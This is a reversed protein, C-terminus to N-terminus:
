AQLQCQCSVIATDSVDRNLRAKPFLLVSFSKAQQHCLSSFVLLLTASAINVLVCSAPHQFAPPNGGDIETYRLLVIYRTPVDRMSATCLFGSCRLSTSSTLLAITCITAFIVGMNPEGAGSDVAADECEPGVAQEVIRSNSYLTNRVMRVLEHRSEGTSLVKSDQVRSSTPRWKGCAFIHLNEVDV